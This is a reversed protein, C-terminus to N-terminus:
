PSPESVLIADGIAPKLSEPFIEGAARLMLSDDFLFLYPGLHPSEKLLDVVANSWFAPNAEATRYNTIKLRGFLDVYDAKLKQFLQFAYSRTGALTDLRPVARADIIWRPSTKEVLSLFTTRSINEVNLLVVAHPVPYPLSLQQAKRSDTDRELEPQDQSTALRLYSPWRGSNM